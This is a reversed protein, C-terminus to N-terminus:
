GDWPYQCDLLVAELGKVTRAEESFTEPELNRAKDVDGTRFRQDAAKASTVTKLREMTATIINEGKEPEKGLPGWLQSTYTVAHGAEWLIQLAGDDVMKKLADWNNAIRKETEIHGKQAREGYGLTRQRQSKTFGPIRGVIERIWQCNGRWKTRTLDM